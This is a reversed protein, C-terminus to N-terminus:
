LAAGSGAAYWPPMGSSRHQATIDSATTTKARNQFASITLTTSVAGSSLTVPNASFAFQSAVSTNATATLSITGTFGKFPTLTLTVGSAASGSRASTAPQCPTLSFDALSTSVVDVPLTGKSGTFTSSGSYVAGVVHGGSSILSTNLTYTANGN